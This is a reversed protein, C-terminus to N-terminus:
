MLGEFYKKMKLMRSGYWSFMEGDVLFIKADSITSMEEIHTQNFPFPETSLFIIDPKLRTIEEESLEIYRPETILNTFGLKELMSHIFNQRGCVMYPNRWIFYLVKGQYQPFATFDDQIDDILDVARQERNTLIGVDKIMQFADEINIVDSVYVPCVASLAEIDQETNEEKNAVILDPHLAIVKDVDVNKTGGIRPKSQFWEAPHVCFKTIGVVENELKLYHLLETQSPVLSIIREPPEPLEVTRGLQDKLCIM